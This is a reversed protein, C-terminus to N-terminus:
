AELWSSPAVLPRVRFVGQGTRFRTVGHLIARRLFRGYLGVHRRGEDVWFSPLVSASVRAGPPLPNM